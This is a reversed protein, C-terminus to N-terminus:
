ATKPSKYLSDIIKINGLLISCLSHRMCDLEFFLLAMISALVGIFIYTDSIRM